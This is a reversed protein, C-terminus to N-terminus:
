KTMGRAYEIDENEVKKIKVKPWGENLLWEKKQTAIEKSDTSYVIDPQVRGLQARYLEKNIVVGTKPDFNDGGGSFGMRAKKWKKPYAQDDYYEVIYPSNKGWKDSIPNPKIGFYRLQKM